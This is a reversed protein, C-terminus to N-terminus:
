TIQITREQKRDVQHGNTSHNELFHQDKKPDDILSDEKMHIYAESHGENMGNIISKLQMVVDALMHAQGAMEESVSANEEAHSANRQTIDSIQNLATTVQDIGISQQNSAETIKEVISAIKHSSEVNKNIASELKTTISVGMNARQQSEQLLSSTAHAAEAARQALARVEDAVVSFGAGAEGARAAEVAANLALINTQFAIEDITKNIKVTEDSSKKIQNIADSMEHIGEEVEMVSNESDHMLDSALRTSEANQKTMAAMQELSASTEQLSAAQENAGEALEQSAASVQYSVSSGQESAAALNDSIAKIPKTISRTIIYSTISGLLIGIIVTVFIMTQMNASMVQMSKSNALLEQVEKNTVGEVHTVGELANGSIENLFKTMLPINEEHLQKMTSIWRSQTNKYNSINKQISILSKKYSATTEANEISKLLSSTNELANQSALLLKPDEADKYKINNVRANAIENTITKFTELLSSPAENQIEKSYLSSLEAMASTGYDAMQTYLMEEETMNKDMLQFTETFLDVQHIMEDCSKIQEKRDYGEQQLNNFITLNNEIADRLSDSTKLVHKKTENSRKVLYKNQYALTSMAEIAQRESNVLVEINVDAIKKTKGDIENTKISIKNFAFASALGSVLLIVIIAGFGTYLRTSLKKHNM